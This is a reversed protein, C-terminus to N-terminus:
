ERMNFWNPVSPIQVHAPEPRRALAFRAALRVNSIAPAPLSRTLRVSRAALIVHFCRAGSAALLARSRTHCAAADRSTNQVVCELDRGHLCGGAGRTTKSPRRSRPPPRRGYGSQVWAVGSSLAALADGRSWRTSAHRGALRSSGRCRSGGRRRSGSDLRKVARVGPKM